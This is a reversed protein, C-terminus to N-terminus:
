RLLQLRYLWRIITVTPRETHNITTGISEGRGMMIFVQNEWYRSILMCSLKFRLVYFISSIAESFCFTRMYYPLLYAHYIAQFHLRFSLNYVRTYLSLFVFQFYIDNFHMNHIIKYSIDYRVKYCRTYKLKIWECGSQIGAPVASSGM